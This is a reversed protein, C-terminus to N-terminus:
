LLSFNGNIEGYVTALLGHENQARAKPKYFLSQARLIKLFIILFSNNKRLKAAQM